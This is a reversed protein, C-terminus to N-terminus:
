ALAILTLGVFVLMGWSSFAARMSVGDPSLEREHVGFAFAVAGFLYLVFALTLFVLLALVGPELLVDRLAVNGPDTGGAGYALTLLLPLVITTIANIAVHLGISYRLRNTRLYVYGFVLGLLAGYCLQSVSGHFLGFAIASTLLATKDGYPRLRDIVCRRFVFEEMLPSALTALAIQLPMHESTTELPPLLSFPIVAHLGAQLLNGAVSGTYMVFVCAPYLLLMERIGLKHCTPEKPTDKKALPALGRPWSRWFRSARPTDKKALPAFAAGRPRKRGLVLLFMPLGVGYIPFYTGVLPGAVRTLAYQMAHISVFMAALALGVRTYERRADVVDSARDSSDPRRKHSVGRGDTSLSPDCGTTRPQLGHNPYLWVGVLGLLTGGFLANLLCVVAFGVISASAGISMALVSGDLILALYIVLIQAIQKLAVGISSPISVDAFAGVASAFFDATALFPLYVLGDLLSFGAAMSGAMLPVAVDLACCASGGLLSFFLKAWISGPQLLFLDKRVDEIAPSIVTRFFVMAALVLAPTYPAPEDMFLHVALGAAVAAFLYTLMTTTIIGYRAFRARQHLAKFFYVSSGRGYRFGERAASSGRGYRFGERAMSASDRATSAGRVTSMALVLPNEGTVKEAFRAILETTSLVDEYYEVRMRLAAVALTICLVVCLSLLCLTMAFNNEMAYRVMGKTWGWVPVWRTWPANFVRQAALILSQDDQARYVMYFVFGAAGLFGYLVWRLNHRIWPHRSGLEFVLMKLLASFLLTFCWALPLSLAGPVSVGLRAALTPAAVIGPIALIATPALTDAIRFALVGQASLPSAFLLNVDAPLFLRAVSKEAGNPGLLVTVSGDSLSFSLDNCAVTKGYRKTYHSVELM